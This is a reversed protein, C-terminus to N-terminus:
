FFLGNRRAALDALRFVAAAFFALLAGLLSGVVVAVNEQPSPLIPSTCAAVAFVTANLATLVGSTGSFLALFGYISPRAPVSQQTSTEIPQSKAEAPNQQEVANGDAGPASLIEDLDPVAIIANCRCRFRRGIYENGANYKEHCQPCQIKISM